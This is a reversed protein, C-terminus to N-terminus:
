RRTTVTLVDSTPATVRPARYRVLWGGDPAARTDLVTGERARVSPAVLAEGDVAYLEILHEADGGLPASPFAWVELASARLAVLLGLVLARMDAVRSYWKAPNVQQRPHLHQRARAAEQRVAGGDLRRRRPRLRLPRPR